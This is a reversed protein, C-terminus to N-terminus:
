KILSLEAVVPRHDSDGVSTLTSTNRALFHSSYFIHDIRVISTMTTLLWLLQKVGSRSPGISSIGRFHSGPVPFSFGFGWGAQRHANYLYQSILNYTQSQDTANFDGGVILPGNTAQIAESLKLAQRYQRSWSPRPQRLHVNWVAIPGDPTDVITKLARGENLSGGTAKVPYRSIVAQQLKSDYVLHLKEGPYLGTLAARLPQVNSQILEQLLIVDPNESHIIEAVNAMDKNGFWINYSMVRLSLNGAQAYHTSPLFLSVFNLGILITPISLAVMLRRRRALGAILLAPILGVLLWPMFDNLAQVLRLRDGPWWRMPYLALLTLGFLWLGLLILRGTLPWLSHVTIINSTSVAYIPSVKDTAKISLDLNVSVSLNKIIYRSLSILQSIAKSIKKM